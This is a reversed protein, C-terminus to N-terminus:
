EVKGIRNVQQEKKQKSKKGKKGKEGKSHKGKWTSKGETRNETEETPTEVPHHANSVRTVLRPRHIRRGRWNTRRREANRKVGDPQTTDDDPRHGSVVSSRRSGFFSYRSPPM